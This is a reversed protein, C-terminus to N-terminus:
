GVSSFGLAILSLICAIISLTVFTNVHRARKKIAEKEKCLKNYEFQMQVQYANQAKQYPNPDKHTFDVPPLSTFKSAPMKAPCRKMHNEIIAEAYDVLNNPPQVSPSDKLIFTAKEFWDSATGDIIIEKKM